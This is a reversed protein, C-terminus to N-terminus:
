LDLEEALGKREARLEALIDKTRGLLAEKRRILDQLKANKAALRAREERLRESAPALYAAEAHEIESLMQALEVQEATTLTGEDERHRLVEYRARKKADWM